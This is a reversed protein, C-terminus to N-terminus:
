LSRPQCLTAQTSGQHDADTYICVFSSRFVDLNGLQQFLVTCTMGFVYVCVNLMDNLMDHPRHPSHSPSAQVSVQTAAHKFISLLRRCDASLKKKRGLKGRKRIKVWMVFVCVCVFVSVCM